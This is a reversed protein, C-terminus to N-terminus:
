KSELEILMDLFHRAKKLDSVGGKSRWRTVYKIVSGEAFGIGNAHIYQIPQIALDKYHEGGEQSTLASKKAAMPPAHDHWGEKMERMAETLGDSMELRRSDTLQDVRRIRQAHKDWEKPDIAPM